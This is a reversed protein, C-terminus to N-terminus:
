SIEEAEDDMQLITEATIASDAPQLVAFRGQWSGSRMRRFLDDETVLKTSIEDWSREADQPLLWGLPTAMELGDVAETKRKGDVIVATQM